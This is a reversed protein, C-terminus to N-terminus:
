DHQQKNSQKHRPTRALVYALLFLRSGLRVTSDAIDAFGAASQNYAVKLM